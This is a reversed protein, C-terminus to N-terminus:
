PARWCWCDGDNCISGEGDLEGSHEGTRRGFARLWGIRYAASAGKPGDASLFQRLLKEVGPKQREQRAVEKPDDENM